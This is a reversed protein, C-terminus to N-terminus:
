IGLLTQRLTNWTMELLALDQRKALWRFDNTGM